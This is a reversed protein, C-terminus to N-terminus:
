QKSGKITGFFGIKYGLKVNRRSNENFGIALDRVEAAARASQDLM